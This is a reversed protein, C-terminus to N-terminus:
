SIPVQFVELRRSYRREPPVVTLDMLLKLFMLLEFSSLVLAM